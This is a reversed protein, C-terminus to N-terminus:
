SALDATLELVVAEVNDGIMQDAENYHHNLIRFDSQVNVSGTSDYFFYDFYAQNNTMASIESGYTEHNNADNLTYPWFWYLTIKQEQNAKM